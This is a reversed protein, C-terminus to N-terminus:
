NGHTGSFSIKQQLITYALCAKKRLVYERRPTRAAVRRLSEREEELRRITQERTVTEHRLQVALRTREVRLRRIEPIMEAPRLTRADADSLGANWEVM